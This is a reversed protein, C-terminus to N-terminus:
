IENLVWNEWIFTYQYTPSHTKRLRDQIREMRARSDSSIEHFQVQLNTIIRILDTQILRELLDYEGGEINVKMLDIRKISNSRIWTAIDVIEVQERNGFDRFLSSSDESIGIVAEQSTGGM